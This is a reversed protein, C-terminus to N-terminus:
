MSVTRLDAGVDDVALGSVTPRQRDIGELLTSPDRDLSRETVELVIRFKHFAEEIVPWLEPPCDSALALPEINLFLLEDTLGAAFAARSSAARAMWDLEVVRNERYAEDILVTPSEVASGAPGRVLAEYGAVARSGVSVIPQFQIRLLGDKLVRQFEDRIKAADRTNVM